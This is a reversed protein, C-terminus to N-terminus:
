AEFRLVAAIVRDVEAGDLEASLPLSLVEAAARAAHPWATPDHLGAYVPQQFPALPYHIASEIGEAALAAHLADRRPSRITYLHRNGKRGEPECPRAKGLAALGADYRAALARRAAVSRDLHLLKVRLIAAQLEDLRSNLGTAEHVYKARAGHSRLSRLTAASGPDDTTLAGGDGAGGLNKTPFFSFCGVDGLAGARRDGYTAGIAQCADEVLPLGHRAAVARLGDMDAPLGYLHTVVVARTRSTVQEALRAPDLTYTVPDIEAFRPAAGLRSVVEADITITFAPVIVEDGPHIGLAMLALALADTGSACAVAHRTGCYAALEAEFAAVEPGLVYRGSRLVRLAASEIEDQLRRHQEALDVLRVPPTLNPAAPLDSM